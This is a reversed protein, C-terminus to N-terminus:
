PRWPMRTPAGGIRPSSWRESGAGTLPDYYLTVPIKAGPVGKNDIEIRRFLGWSCDTKLCAAHDLDISNDAQYEAALMIEYRGREIALQSPADDQTGEPYPSSKGALRTSCSRIGAAPRFTSLVAQGPQYAPMM